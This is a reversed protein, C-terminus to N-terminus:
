RLLEKEDIGTLFDREDEKNAADRSSSKFKSVTKTFGFSIAGAKREGQDQPAAAKSVDVDYSAM